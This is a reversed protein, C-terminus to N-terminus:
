LFTAPLYAQDTTELVTFFM